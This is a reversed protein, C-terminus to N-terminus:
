KLNAKIAELNKEVYEMVKQLNRKPKLEGAKYDKGFHDWLWNLYSDPVNALPKGKHEGFPMLDTEKM